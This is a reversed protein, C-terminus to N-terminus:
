TPPTSAGCAGGRPVCANVQAGEATSLTTCADGTACENGTPCTQACYTDGGFQACVGGNCDHDTLCAVCSGSSGGAGSSSGSSSASGSSGGTVGVGGGDGGFDLSPPASSCGAIGLAVGPVLALLRYKHSLGRSRHSFVPSLLSPHVHFKM